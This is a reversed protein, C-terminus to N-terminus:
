VQKPQMSQIFEMFGEKGLLIFAGIYFLITITIVFIVLIVIFLLTRLVIGGLTLRYLRKLCYASYLIQFPFTVYVLAGLSIGSMAAIINLIGAFISVQAIIYMFIVLHETYNFKKINIFVLRSMIAYLPVFLMMVLSQNDQILDFSEKAMAEQGAVTVASLDIAEPFFRKLLFFEFGTVLLAISFYSVVNVYKKRTGNIYSGIVDEPKKFLNIFTQLFKNDYDLFQASFSAILNKLTLRNRIVKGGCRSCYGSATNLETHCNKCNM